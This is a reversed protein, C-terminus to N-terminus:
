RCVNSNAGRIRTGDVRFGVSTANDTEDTEIIRGLPDAQWHKHGPHRLMCGTLQRSAERDHTRQFKGDRNADRHLVQVAEHQSSPCGGRGRPLLFLLGPGVNTLSAAFRLRRTPGVVEIQLDSASLSRMNPLLLPAPRPVTSTPMPTSHTASPAAGSPSSSTVTSGSRRDDVVLVIGVVGVVLATATATAAVA